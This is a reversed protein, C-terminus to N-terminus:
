YQIYVDDCEKVFYEKCHLCMFSIHFGKFRAELGQVYQNTCFDCIPISATPTYIIQVKVKQLNRNEDGYAKVWEPNLSCDKSDGDCGDPDPIYKKVCTYIPTGDWGRRKKHASETKCARKCNACWAM